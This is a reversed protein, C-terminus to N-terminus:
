AGSPGNNLIRVAAYNNADKAEEVVCCAQGAATVSLNTDGRQFTAAAATTWYLYQGLTGAVGAPLKVYWIRDPAIEMDANRDVDAAAINKLAVGTWGNLRYLDGFTIVGAPWTMGGLTARGDSKLQGM